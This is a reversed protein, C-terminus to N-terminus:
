FYGAVTLYSFYGYFATIALLLTNTILSPRLSKDLKFNNLFILIPTYLFMVLGGLTGSLILWPLPQNLPLLFAGIIVFVVMFLYYLHHASAFKFVSFIKTLKGVRSNTHIIDSVMRALADLVTWMVSFLMLFAMVLYAIRGTEGLHKAFIEAQATAVNLGEPTTGLTGLVSYANLSILILTIFGFATFIVGQDIKVFRLWNRWTLFQGDKEPEFRYGTPSVAEPKGTVPNTIRGAYSGMGFGKDRYWLSVCLNLMGGAGAFVVAGLLTAMNVNQPIFGFSLIGKMGAKIINLDLNSFSIVVLLVFFVPVTIKLTKELIEYAIKGSFTLILVLALSVWAWALYSGFGLLESLITGVTSAWGPWIYLAMACFLWFLPSWKLIRGSSTFFSEGTAVEHRAVEHNILFQCLIGILALWLIGLGHKIVLHPWIVLEGTGMALGMIVVGVGLAKTWSPPTPLPRVELKPFDNQNV